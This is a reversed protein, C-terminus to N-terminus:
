DYLNGLASSGEDETAKELKDQSEEKAESRNITGDSNLPWPVWSLLEFTTKDYNFARFYLSATKFVAQKTAELHEGPVARQKEWFDFENLTRLDDEITNALKHFHGTRALEGLHKHATDNRKAYLKIALRVYKDGPLNASKALKKVLDTLYEHGAPTMEEEALREDIKAWPQTMFFRMAKAETSEEEAGMESAESPQSRKNRGKKAIKKAEQNVKTAETRLQQLTVAYYDGYRLYFGDHAVQELKIRCEAYQADVEIRRTMEEKLTSLTNRAAIAWPSESQDDGIREFDALIQRARSETLPSMVRQGKENKSALIDRIWATMEAVPRASTNSNDNEQKRKRIVLSTNLDPSHSPAATNSPSEAEGSSDPESAM